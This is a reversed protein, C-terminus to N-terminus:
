ADDGDEPKEAGASLLVADLRMLGEVDASSPTHGRLRAWDAVTGYSLPAFGNMGIGSRGHVQYLWDLLYDLADPYEPGQL